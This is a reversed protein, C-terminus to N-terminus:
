WPSQCIKPKLVHKLLLLTSRYPVYELWCAQFLLHRKPITQGQTEDSVQAGLQIMVMPFNFEEQRLLLGPFLPMM